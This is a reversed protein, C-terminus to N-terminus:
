CGGTTKIVERGNKRGYVPPTSASSTKSPRITQTDRKGFFNTEAGSGTTTIMAGKSSAKTAHVAKTKIM